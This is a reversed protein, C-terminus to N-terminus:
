VRVPSDREVAVVQEVLLVVGGDARRRPAVEITFRAIEHHRQLPRESTSGQTRDPRKAARDLQQDCLREQLDFLEVRLHHGLLDDLAFDHGFVNAVLGVQM